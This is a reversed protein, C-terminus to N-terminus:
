TPIMIEVEKMNSSRKDVWNQMDIGYLATIVCLAGAVYVLVVSITSQLGVGITDIMPITTGSAIASVTYQVLYKSAIAEQRNLPMVEACYTNLGAFASLIGAASFFATVIPLALGGVQKDVGWGFILSAAPIILFWSVFGSRLRDQPLRLGARQKIWSRVTHDSLRGGILTGVLFGFAPSLYFLGSILPSTLNYQSVLIQHPSSLLSYQSWALLGCALDTLLLNPYKMLRFVKMPSFCLVIELLSSSKMTAAKGGEKLFLLSLVLGLLIMGSQIYLIVRWDAYTVVIGAILPGLPPGIVTGCLFFGTATGRKVPPFYEALLAQGTVHFFTGQFGSLIRFVIFTQLTPAVSAAVTWILLAVICCNYTYLRGFLPILPGWLFNSLGMCFLVGASSANIIEPTTKLDRAVDTAASFLSTSSFCATLTVFSTTFVVLCKRLTSTSYGPLDEEVDVITTTQEKSPETM